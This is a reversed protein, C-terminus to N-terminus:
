LLFMKTRDPNNETHYFTIKNPVPFREDFEKMSLYEGNVKTVLVNGAMSWVRNDRFSIANLWDVIGHVRHPTVKRSPM